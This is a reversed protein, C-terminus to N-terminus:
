LATRRRGASRSAPPRRNSGGTRAAGRKSGWSTRSRCPSASSRGASRCLGRGRCRPCNGRCAGWRSGSGGSRCGGFGRRGGGVARGGRAEAEADVRDRQAEDGVALGQGVGHVAAVLQRALARGEGPSAARSRLAGGVFVGKGPYRAAATRPGYVSRTAIIPGP